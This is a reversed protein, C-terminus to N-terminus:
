NNTTAMKVFHKDRAGRLTCNLCENPMRRVLLYCIACIIAAQVVHFYFRVMAHMILLIALAHCLYEGIIIFAICAYRKTLSFSEGLECYGIADISFAILLYLGYILSLLKAMYFTFLLTDDIISCVLTATFFILNIIAIGLTVKFVARNRYVQFKEVFCHFPIGFAIKIIFVILLFQTIQLVPLHYSYASRVFFDTFETTTQDIDETFNATGNFDNDNSFANTQIDFIDSSLSLAFPESQNTENLIMTTNEISMSDTSSEFETVSMDTTELYETTTPAQTETQNEFETTTTEMAATTSLGIANTWRKFDFWVNTLFLWYICNSTLFVNLLRLLLVLFLPRANGNSFINRDDSYDEVLQMKFENFDRRIFHRSENRLKLMIELARLDTGNELLFVISEYTCPMFILTFIALVFMIVGISANVDCFGTVTSIFEALLVTPLLNIASIIWMFHQRMFQSSNDAIHLVLTVLTVGYLTGALARGILLLNYACMEHFVFAMSVPILAVAISYQLQQPQQQTNSTTQVHGFFVALIEGVM